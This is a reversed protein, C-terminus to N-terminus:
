PVYNVQMQRNFALGNNDHDITFVLSVNLAANRALSASVIGFTSQSQLHEAMLSSYTTNAINQMFWSGSYNFTYASNYGQFRYLQNNFLCWATPGTSDLVVYRYGNSNAGFVSNFTVSPGATNVSQISKVTTSDTNSYLPSASQTRISLRRGVSVATVTAAQLQDTPLDILTLTSNGSASNLYSGVASIRIYEICKGQYAADHSLPDRLSFPHIGAIERSLRELVFRSEAIRQQQMASDNYLGVTQSLFRTSIGGVIGLIVIVVILEMLTFGRMRM